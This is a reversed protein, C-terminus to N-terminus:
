VVGAGFPPAGKAIALEEETASGPRRQQGALRAREAALKAAKAADLKPKVVRYTGVALPFAAIGLGLLPSRAFQAAGGWGYAIDCHALAVALKDLRSPTYVGDLEPVTAVLMERGLDLLPRWEDAGQAIATQLQQEAVEEATVTQQAVAQAEEGAIADLANWQDATADSRGDPIPREQAAPDTVKM